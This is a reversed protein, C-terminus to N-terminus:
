AAVELRDRARLVAIRASIVTAELRGDCCGQAGRADLELATHLPKEHLAM